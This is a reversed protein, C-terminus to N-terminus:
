SKVSGLATECYWCVIGSELTHACHPSQELKYEEVFWGKWRAEQAHILVYRWNTSTDSKSYIYHINSTDVYYRDLLIRRMQLHTNEQGRVVFNRVHPSSAYSRAAVCRGKATQITALHRSRQPHPLLRRLRSYQGNHDRHSTSACTGNRPPPHPTSHCYPQWRQFM